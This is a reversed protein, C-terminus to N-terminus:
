PTQRMTLGAGSAGVVSANVSDATGNQKVSRSALVELAELDFHGDKGDTGITVKTEADNKTGSIAAAGSIVGGSGSVTEAYLIDSAEAKATLKDATLDIAGIETITDLHGAADALTAGAALIGGRYASSVAAQGSNSMSLIEVNGAGTFKAGDEVKALVKGGVGASSQAGNGGILAGAAALSDTVADAKLQGAGVYVDAAAIEASGDVVAQNDLDIDSKAVSAGVSLVGANVGLAGANGHSSGSTFMRFGEALKFVADGVYSKLKSVISSEAYAGEGSVVGAAGAIAQVDVSVDDKASGEFSDATVKAGDAVFARVDNTKNVIAVSAGAAGGISAEM